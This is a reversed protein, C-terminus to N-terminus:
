VREIQKRYDALWEAVLRKTTDSLIDASLDKDFETVRQMRDLIRAARQYLKASEKTLGFAKLHQTTTARGAIIAGAAFTFMLAGVFLAGWLFGV